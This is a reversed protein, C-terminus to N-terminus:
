DELDMIEFRNFKNNIKKKLYKVRDETEKLEQKLEEKTKPEQIILRKVMVWYIDANLKFGCLIEWKDAMAYFATGDKTVIYGYEYDDIIKKHLIKYKDQYKDTM